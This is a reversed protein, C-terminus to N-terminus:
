DRSWRGTGGLHYLIQRDSREHAGRLVRVPQYRVGIKTGTLGLNERLFHVLLLRPEVDGGRSQGNVTMQINM